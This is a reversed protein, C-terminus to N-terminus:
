PYPWGNPVCGQMGLTQQQMVPALRGPAPCGVHGHGLFHGVEHNVVYDRYSTLSGGANTFPAAGYAWRHANIVVTSGVRCSTYGNTNLPHCLRDVTAPTTLRLVVDAPGDTRAFTVAGHRGWGRSANLTTMVLGGFEPRDVSIGRETEVRVRVTRAADGPAPVHGPVVAFTGSGSWPPAGVLGGNTPPEPPPTPAAPPRRLGFTDAGDGDWDGAFAADTTRGFSVSTEADGGALTNSVHLVTGRRVALTDTGDGDWDGVLVTDGARGYDLEIEADGSTLSNSLFYRNGRRVALTDTGDGDWDGVHVVDTARGYAVQRDAPGSTLSNRLHYVQGRRVALTDTRNGDWDGVLVDDDTRGYVLHRDAVGDLEDDLFFETGSGGVEGSAAAEPPSTALGALLALAPLSALAGLLRRRPRNM